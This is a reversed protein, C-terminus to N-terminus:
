HRCLAQTLIFLAAAEGMKMMVVRMVMVVVVVVVMVVVVVVMAVVVVVRMVVRMVVLMMIVVVVAMVVVVVMMVAMVVVVLMVVVVAMRMLTLDFVLSFSPLLETPSGSLNQFQSFSTHYARPQGCDPGPPFSPELGSSAALHTALHAARSTIRKLAVRFDVLLQPKAIM